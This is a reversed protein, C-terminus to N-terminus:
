QVQSTYGYGVITGGSDYIARWSSITQLVGDLLISSNFFRDNQVVISYYSEGISLPATFQVFNLHQEIPPINSLSPDGIGDNEYNGGVGFQVLYIPDSSIVSCYTSGLTFFVVSENTGLMHNTVASENCTTVVFTEDTNAIMKYGQGIRGRHPSLLFRRGWQFTPPVQNMLFDCATVDSPFNACQCGSVVTLPKDSIVKSSTLDFLSFVLLTQMSHLIINHSEGASLTRMSSSSSQPDVPISVTQSPIITINSSNQCGVILFQSHWRPIPETSM